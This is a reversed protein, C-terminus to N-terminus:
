HLPYDLDLNEVWAYEGEKGPMNYLVMMVVWKLREIDVDEGELAIARDVVMERTQCDLVGIQEMFHIFGRCDTDLKESEQSTYIRIACTTAADPHYDQDRLDLLDDLWLLAKNVESRGFGCQELTSVLDEEQETFGADDDFFHEFIFLLVELVDEKM